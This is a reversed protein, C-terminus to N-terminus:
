AVFTMRPSDNSTGRFICNISSTVEADHGTTTWFYEESQAWSERNRRGTSQVVEAEEEGIIFLFFQSM